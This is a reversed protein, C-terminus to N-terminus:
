RHGGPREALATARVRAPIARVRRPVRWVRTRLRDPGPGAGIGKGVLWDALRAPSTGRKMELRSLMFRDDASSSLAHRVACASDYGGEAVAQRVRTTAYGYPYAFSRVAVGLRDELLGRCSRIENRAAASALVDLEPHSHSHGGLEVGRELSEALQAWTLMRDDPAWGSRTAPDGEVFGTTVYLTAPLGREELLPLAVSHFDAFGDDFTVAVPRAPLEGRGAFGDLLGSVTVGTYGAEVLQDLQAAFRGPPVAFSGIWDCGREAISHYM